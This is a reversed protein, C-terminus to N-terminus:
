ELGGRSYGLAEMVENWLSAQEDPTAVWETLSVGGSPIEGPWRERLRKYFLPLVEMAADPHELYHFTVQRWQDLSREVVTEASLFPVADPGECTRGNAHLIM